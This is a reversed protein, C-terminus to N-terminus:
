NSEESSQSEEANKQEVMEVLKERAIALVSLAAKQLMAQVIPMILSQIFRNGGRSSKKNSGSTLRNLITYVVLILGAIIAFKKVLEKGRSVSAGMDKKLHSKHLELEKILKDKEKSIAM